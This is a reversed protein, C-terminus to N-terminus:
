VICIFDDEKRQALQINQKKFNYLVVNARFSQTVNVLQKSKPTVCFLM